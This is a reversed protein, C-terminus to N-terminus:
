LLIYTESLRRISASAQGGYLCDDEVLMAPIAYGNTFCLYTSDGGTQAEVPKSGRIGHSEVSEVGEVSLPTM